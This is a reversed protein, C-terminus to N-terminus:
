WLTLGRKVANRIVSGIVKKRKEIEEESSVIVDCPIYLNALEKRIKHAIEKKGERSVQKEMVILLDWDSNTKFDGRARSGFLIIKKVAIGMENRMMLVYKKIKTIGEKNQKSRLTDQQKL